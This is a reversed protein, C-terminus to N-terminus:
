RMTTEPADSPSGTETEPRQARTTQADLVRLVNGGAIPAWRLDAAELATRLNGLESVDSLGLPLEPVGDFDSGLCAANMGGLSVVHRFHATLTELNPPALSPSLENALRFKAAGRDVWNEHADDLAAFEDRHQREVQRRRRRYSTDIFQSYYNVCVAGGNAAVRRIMADTMNRPHDALARASSHSAFVPRETIDMIDSFTQDSVHSVDVIMGLRNMERVVRRGLPTLGRNPHDGTSSHGLPNDTSWTITLYRNGLAYLERLRSLTLEPDDTGFAQAGEVGMLIAARGARAAAKVEDATTCLTAVDPHDETLKRVAATLALARQWAVEGEYKNPNVFISFFAGSLGGERMRPLDLHGGEVRSAIDDGDLMRQPTDVHTDIAIVEEPIEAGDEPPTPPEEPVATEDSPSFTETVNTATSSTATSTGECDCGLVSTAAMILLPGLARRRRTFMM